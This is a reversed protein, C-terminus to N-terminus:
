RLPITLRTSPCITLQTRPRLTLLTKRIQQTRLTILLLPPPRWALDPFAFRPKRSSGYRKQLSSRSTLLLALFISVSSRRILTLPVMRNIHYRHPDDVAVLLRFDPNKPDDQFIDVCALSPYVEYLTASVFQPGSLSPVIDSIENEYLFLTLGAGNRDSYHYIQQYHKDRAVQASPSGGIANLLGDLEEFDFGLAHLDPPYAMLWNNRTQKSPYLRIRPSARNFSFSSWFSFETKSSFSM